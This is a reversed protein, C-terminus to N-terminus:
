SPGLARASPEYRRPFVLLRSVNSSRKWCNNAFLIDGLFRLTSVTANRILSPMTAILEVEVQSCTGSNSLRPLLTCSLINFYVMGSCRNHNVFFYQCQQPPTSSADTRKSTCFLVTRPFYDFHAFNCSLPETGM